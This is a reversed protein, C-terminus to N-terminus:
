EVIEEASTEVEVEPAAESEEVPVEADDVVEDEAVEPNSLGEIHENLANILDSKKWSDDLELGYTEFAYTVIQSKTMSNFDVEDSAETSDTEVEDTAEDGSEIQEDQMEDSNLANDTDEEIVESPVEEAPDEVLGDESDAVSEEPVVDTAEEVVEDTTEEPVEELTEPVEPADPAEQVEPVEETISMNESFSGQDSSPKNASNNVLSANVLSGISAATTTVVVAGRNIAHQISSTIARSLVYGKPPICAAVQKGRDNVVIVNQILRSKSVVKYM